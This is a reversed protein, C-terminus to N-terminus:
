VPEETLQTTPEDPPLPPLIEKPVRVPPEDTRMTSRQEGTLDVRDKQHKRTAESQAAVEESYGYFESGSDVRGPRVRPVAESEQRFVAKTFEAISVNFLKVVTVIEPINEALTRAARSLHVISGEGMLEQMARAQQSTVEHLKRMQLLLYWLSSIGVVLAITFGVAFIIAIAIWVPQM